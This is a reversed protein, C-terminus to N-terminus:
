TKRGKMHDYLDMKTHELTGLMDTNSNIGYSQSRLLVPRSQEDVEEYIVVVRSFREPHELALGVMEGLWEAPTSDKKWVPLCSISATM